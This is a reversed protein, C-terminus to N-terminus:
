DDLLTLTLHVNKNEPNCFNTLKRLGEIKMKIYNKSNYTYIGSKWGMEPIYEEWIGDIASMEEQNMCGFDMGDVAATKM